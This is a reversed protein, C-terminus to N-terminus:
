GAEREVHRGTGKRRLRRRQKWIVGGIGNKGSNNIGEVGRM